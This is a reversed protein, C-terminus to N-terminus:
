PPDKRWFTRNFVLLTMYHSELAHSHM